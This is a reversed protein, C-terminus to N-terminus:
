RRETKSGAIKLLETQYETLKQILHLAKKDTMDQDYGASECQQMTETFGTDSFKLRERCLSTIMDASSDRRFGLKHMMVQRFRDWAVQVALRPARSRKYLGGLTEIFELSSLRSPEQLPRMPGSRRSYTILAAGLVLALQAFLWKLPTDAVRSWLSQRSSHFYEDWYIRTNRDGISNLLLDLNGTENIGANTLPVSSAWWVVEGAGLHYSIVVPGDATAYHVMQDPSTVNWKSEWSSKFPGGRTIRSPLSPEIDSQEVHAVTLMEADNIPLLSGALWGVALVRGGLRVYRDIAQKEARDPYLTPQALILLTGKPKAPLQDPPEYWREIAYGSEQLMLYTAKAGHSHASTSSPFVPDKDANPSTVLVLAIIVGIIVAFAIAAKKEEPRLTLPM